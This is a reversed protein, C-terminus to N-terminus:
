IPPEFRNVLQFVPSLIRTWYGTVLLLGISVLIAGSVLNIADHHRRIAEFAGMARGVGMGALVFPVGLGLSFAFLLLAGRASGGQATALALIGALVPGICPTWGAAFAMGLPMATARGPRVRELFPRRDAYLSANGRRLGTAIMLSGAAIVVVGAIRLGLSSRVIPVLFGAFAGLATFVLSFGAIFLLMPAVPARTREVTAVGGPVGAPPADVATASVFSLYGPVLPLVCPSAFAVIGAGFALMPAWWATLDFTEM